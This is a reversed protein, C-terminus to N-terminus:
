TVTLAEALQDRYTLLEPGANGWVVLVVENAERRLTIMGAPTGIRLESWLEPPQEDPFALEGDIMQVPAHFTLRSAIQQWPPLPTSLTIRRDLGM